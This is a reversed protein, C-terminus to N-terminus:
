ERRLGWAPLWRIPTGHGPAGPSAQSLLKPLALALGLVIWFGRSTETSLFFSTIFWTLLGLVLAYAVRRVFDAGIADARAATRLLALVTSALLGVYLVIGFIGLEAWAELYSNHVPQGPDRFFYGELNVGPTRLMLDNSAYPFAGYGLGLVPRDNISTRAALWLNYRGSGRQTGAPGQGFVSQVRHTIQQSYRFSVAATAFAVALLAIAKSRRSRFLVRAPLVILLALFIAFAILGGRSLSVLISGVIILAGFSLGLRLWRKEAQAALVLMLPLVLLQFAAFVSPDGVEGQARGAQTAGPLQIKGSFALWSVAGLVVSAVAFAYLVRELDRQSGLMSAFALMYVLAIVLSGLLYATGSMSTTWLGSAFAWLAYAGAWLLPASVHISARGRLLEVLVILLAIPALVRSITTGELRVLEVFISAALIWLIMAPRGAVAIGAAIALAVAIAATPSRSAAWALALAAMGAAIAWSLIAPPPAVSPTRFEFTSARMLVSDYESAWPSRV